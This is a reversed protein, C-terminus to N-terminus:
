HQPLVIHLTTGRPWESGTGKGWTVKVIPGQADVLGRRSSGKIESDQLTDEASPNMTCEPPISTKVHSMFESVILVPFKQFGTFAGGQYIVSQTKFWVTCEAHLCNLCNDEM